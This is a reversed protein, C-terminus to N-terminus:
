KIINVQMTSLGGAVIAKITQGVSKDRLAVLCGLAAMQIHKNGSNVQLVSGICQVLSEFHTDERLNQSDEILSKMIDLAYFRFSLDPTLLSTSSSSPRRTAPSPKTTMVDVTIVAVLNPLMM